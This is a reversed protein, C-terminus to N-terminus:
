KLSFQYGRTKQSSCFLLNINVVSLVARSELAHQGGDKLVPAQYRCASLASPPNTDQHLDM